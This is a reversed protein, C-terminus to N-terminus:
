YARNPTVLCIICVQDTISTKFSDGRRGGVSKHRLQPSPLAVLQYMSRAMVKLTHPVSAPDLSLTAYNNVVVNLSFVLVIERRLCM